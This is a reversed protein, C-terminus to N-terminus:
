WSLFQALASLDHQGLGAAIAAYCEANTYTQRLRAGVRDGM